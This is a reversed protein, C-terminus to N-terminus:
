TLVSVLVSHPHQPTLGCGPISHGMVGHRKMKALHKNCRLGGKCPLPHLDTGM